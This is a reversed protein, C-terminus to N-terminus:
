SNTYPPVYLNMDRTGIVWVNVNRISPQVLFPFLTLGLIFLM